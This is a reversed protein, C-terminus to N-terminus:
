LLSKGPVFAYGDKLKKAARCELELVANCSECQETPIIKQQGATGLKGWQLMFGETRAEGTWFKGSQSPQFRM